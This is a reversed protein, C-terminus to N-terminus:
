SGLVSLQVNRSRWFFGAPMHVSKASSVIFRAFFSQTLPRFAHAGPLSNFFQQAAWRSQQPGGPTSVYRRTREARRAGVAGQMQAQERRKEVGQQGQADGPPIRARKPLQILCAVACAQQKATGLSRTAGAAMWVQTM